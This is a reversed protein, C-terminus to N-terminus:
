FRRPLGVVLALCILCILPAILFIYLFQAYPQLGNAIGTCISAGAAVCLPLRWNDIKRCCHAFM